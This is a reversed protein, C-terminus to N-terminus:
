MNCLSESNHLNHTLSYFDIYEKVNKTYFRYELGSIISHPAAYPTQLWWSAANLNTCESRDSQIYMM